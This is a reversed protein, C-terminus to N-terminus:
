QFTEAFISSANTDIFENEGNRPMFVDYTSNSNQLTFSFCQDCSSNSPCAITAAFATSDIVLIAVLSFLIKRMFYLIVLTCYWVLLLDDFM